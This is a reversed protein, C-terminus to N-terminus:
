SSDKLLKYYQSLAPDGSEIKQNLPYSQRQKLLPDLKKCVDERELLRFFQSTLALIEQFDQETEILPRAQKIASLFLKPSGRKILFRACEILLDLDPNEHLHEFLREFLVRSEEEDTEFLLAARLFEFWKSDSVYQCFGDILESAYLSHGNEIQEATYDYIFAELDHACYNSIEAFLEQPDGGRDVNEDLLTELDKLATQLVEENEIKGQDYLYLLHDLGDCFISLSQKEPLLRRWLEFLLLYAQDFREDVEESVWLADVLEEPSSISQAYENFSKKTLDIDLGKLRKFLEAESLLRLDEVQWPEVPLSPDEM